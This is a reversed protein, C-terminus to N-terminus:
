GVSFSLSKHAFQDFRREDREVSDDFRGFPPGVEVVLVRRQGDLLQTLVVREDHTPHGVLCNNANQPLTM